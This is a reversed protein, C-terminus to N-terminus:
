CASLTELDILQTAIKARDTDDLSVSVWPRSFISSGCPRSLVQVQSRRVLHGNPMLETFIFHGFKSRSSNAGSEGSSPVPNSGNTGGAPCREGRPMFSAPHRDPMESHHRGKSV